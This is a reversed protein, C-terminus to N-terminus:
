LCGCRSLINRVTAEPSSFDEVIIHAARRYLPERQAFRRLFDQKGAQALPRGAMDVSDFIHDASRNLWVVRGSERLTRVNEERLIVGGGTSIVLGTRQSLENVLASELDRFFTEGEAAFIDSISRGQRMQILADMDVAERQLHRALLRGCTSKGCGMMGILILNKNPSLTSM